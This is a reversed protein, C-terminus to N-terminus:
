RKEQSYFIVTPDSIQVLRSKLHDYLPQNAFPRSKSHSRFDPLAVMQFWSMVFPRWKTLFWKFDPCFHWSKSYNPGYSYGLSFGSGKLVLGNLIPGEFLGSKLHKWIESGWQILLLNPKFRSVSETNLQILIFMKKWVSLLDCISGDDGWSSISSGWFSIVWEWSWFNTYFTWGRCVPSSM